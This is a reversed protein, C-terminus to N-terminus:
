SGRMTLTYSLNTYCKCLLQSNYYVPYERPIALEPKAIYIYRYYTHKGASYFLCYEAIVSAKVKPMGLDNQHWEFVKRNKRLIHSKFQMKYGTPGGALMIRM